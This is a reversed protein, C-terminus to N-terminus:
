RSGRAAAQDEDRPREARQQSGGFATGCFSDAYWRPAEPTDSPWVRVCGYVTGAENAALGSGQLRVERGGDVQRVVAEGHGPAGEFGVLAVTTTPGGRDQGLLVVGVGVAAVVLLAAAAPSSVRALGVLQDRQGPRPREPRDPPVVAVIEAPDRTTGGLMRAVREPTPPVVPLGPRESMLDRFPVGDLPLHNSWRSVGGEREVLAPIGPDARGGITEVHALLATHGTALDCAQTADIPLYRDRLLRSM